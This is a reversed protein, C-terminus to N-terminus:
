RLGAGIGISLFLPLLITAKREATYDLPNFAVTRLAAWLGLPLSVSLSLSLPPSHSRYSRTSQAAQRSGGHLSYVGPASSEFSWDHRLVRLGRLGPQTVQGETTVPRRWRHSISHFFLSIILSWVPFFHISNWKLLKMFINVTRTFYYHIPSFLFVLIITIIM